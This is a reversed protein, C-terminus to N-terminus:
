DPHRWISARGGRWDIERELRAGAAQAVRVSAENGSAILSILQLGPLHERAMARVARAAEAAYGRGRAAPVLAWKIEPEPWDNPFWLGAVGLVAGDDQDLLSYPGYGRWAWHGIVGAWTRWTQAETLPTGLTYRVSAADGYYSYLARWDDEAPLRLRLRASELALPIRLEAFAAM